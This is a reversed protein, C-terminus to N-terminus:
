LGKSSMWETAADGFRARYTEYDPSDPHLDEFDMRMEDIDYYNLYDGESQIWVKDERLSNEVDDWRDDIDISGSYSEVDDWRDDISGSYSENIVQRIIRRLKSETIRM